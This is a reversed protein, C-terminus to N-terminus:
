AETFIEAYYLRPVGEQEFFPRGVKGIKAVDKDFSSHTM